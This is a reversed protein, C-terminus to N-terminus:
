TPRRPEATSGGPGADFSDVVARWGGYATLVIALAVFAWFSFWAARPNPNILRTFGAMVVGASAGIGAGMALILIAM